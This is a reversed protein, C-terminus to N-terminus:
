VTIYDKINSFKADGIGSVNKIDEISTFSNDERYTIIANATVEGIGPLTMLEDKGATNINILSGGSVGSSGQDGWLYSEEDRIIGDGTGEEGAAPIYVSFNSDIVYVLNIRTIDADPTFGGAMNVADNLISGKSIEYVGPRNVEGCLYISCIEITESTQSTDPEKITELSETTELVLESSQGKITAIFGSSSGTIVIKYLMSLLAILVFAAPYLFPKLKKANIKM